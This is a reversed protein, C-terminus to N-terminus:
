GVYKETLDLRYCEGSGCRYHGACEALMSRLLALGIVREVEVGAIALANLWVRKEALDLRHSNGGAIALMNPWVCKEALGLGAVREAEV